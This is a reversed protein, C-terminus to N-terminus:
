MWMGMNVEQDLIKPTYNRFSKKKPQIQWLKSESCVCSKILLNHKIYDFQTVEKKQESSSTRKKYGTYKDNSTTNYHNQVPHQYKERLIVETQYKEKPVLIINKQIPSPDRKGM